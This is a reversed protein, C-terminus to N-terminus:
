ELAFKASVLFLVRTNPIGMGLIEKNIEMELFIIRLDEMKFVKEMTKLTSYSKYNNNGRNYGGSFRRNNNFSYRRNNGGNYNNGRSIEIHQFELQEYGQDGGQSGQSNSNNGQVYMALM